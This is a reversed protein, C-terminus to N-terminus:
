QDTNESDNDDLTLSWLHGYNEKFYKALAALSDPAYDHSNTSKGSQMRYYSTLNKIFKKYDDSCTEWDSRFRCYNKIFAAMSLIRTHKNATAHFILFDVYHGANNLADRIDNGFLYWAGNGELRVTDCKNRSIRELLLQENVDTGENNYVVDDIYILDGILKGFPASLDDGGKDAPDIQCYSHEVHKRTDIKAPDYFNLQSMPFLLGKKDSPEQMYEADWIYPDINKKIKLYEKTSKVNNCFSVMEEGQKVLASITVYTSLEKNELAKGIVDKTTWRTGIFIEPCNLEKRSDHVSEKWQLVSDNYNESLADALGRYLDDNIALNAGIGIITGGTGAGFYTVQRAQTINWGQVNQKDKSLIIEPFVSKYRGSRIIKRVDYSFKKYLTATCTNRMVSLTPLKGIWWSCFLSTIYSKGARPPMSVGISIPNGSIYSDYLHQFAEAVKKLFPRASFFDIDYYLCFEWFDHAALLRNIEENIDHPTIEIEM